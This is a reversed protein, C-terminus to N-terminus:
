GRSRRFFGVVIQPLLHVAGGAVVVEVCDDVHGDGRHLAVVIDGGRLHQLGRVLQLLHVGQLHLQRVEQVLLEVLDIGTTEVRRM